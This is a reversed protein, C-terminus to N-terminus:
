TLCTGPAEAAKHVTKKEICGSVNLKLAAKEM